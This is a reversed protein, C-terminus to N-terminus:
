RAASVMFQVQRLSDKSRSPYENKFRAIRLGDQTRQQEKPSHIDLALMNRLSVGINTETSWQFYFNSSLNYIHHINNRSYRLIEQCESCIEFGMINFAWFM